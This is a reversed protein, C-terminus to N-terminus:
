GHSDSKHMGPLRSLQMSLSEALGPCRKLEKELAAIRNDKSIIKVKLKVIQEHLKANEKKLAELFESNPSEDISKSQNM